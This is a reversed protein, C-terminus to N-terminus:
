PTIQPHHLGRVPGGRALYVLFVVCYFSYRGMASSYACFFLTKASSPAQSFDGSDTTYHM